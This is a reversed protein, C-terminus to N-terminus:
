AGQTLAQLARNVIPTPVSSKVMEAVVVGDIGFLPDPVESLRDINFSYPIPAFMCHYRHPLDAVDGNQRMGDEVGDEEERTEKEEM